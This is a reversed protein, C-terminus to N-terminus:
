EAHHHQGGVGLRLRHFLVEEMEHTFCQRPTFGAGATEFLFFASVQSSLMQSFAEYQAQIAPSGDTEMGGDPGAELQCHIRYSREGIGERMAEACQEQGIFGYQPVAGYAFGWGLM